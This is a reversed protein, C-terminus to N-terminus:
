FKLHGFDIAEKIHREATRTSCGVIAVYKNKLDTKKHTKVRIEKLLDFKNKIIVENDPKTTKVVKTLIGGELTCFLTDKFHKLFINYIQPDIRLSFTHNIEKNDIRLVYANVKKFGVNRLRLEVIM